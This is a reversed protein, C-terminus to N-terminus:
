SQTIWGRMSGNRILWTLLIAYTTRHLVQPNFGVDVTLHEDDILVIIAQNQVYIVQNQVDIAQDQANIAIYYEFIDPIGVKGPIRSCMTGPRKQEGCLFLGLFSALNAWLDAFFSSIILM